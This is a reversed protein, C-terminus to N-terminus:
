DFGNGFIIDPSAEFAGVDVAVGQVRARGDADYAGSGGQPNSLGSDILISDPRLRPNGVAVFGPDGTGPTNNTTPAGMLKGYHVRSFHIGNGEARIDATSPNPDNGWTVTNSVHTTGNEANTLGLGSSTANLVITEMTTVSIQSLRSIGNGTTFVFIGVFVNGRSDRASINRLSLLGSVNHFFGAEASPSNVTTSCQELHVREVLTHGISTSGYLCATENIAHSPNRLTLDHVYATTNPTVASGTVGFKLTTRTAVGVLITLSPDNSKTECTGNSGSWGGSLEILQDPKSAWFQFAENGNVTQYTGTRLRIIFITDTSATAEDLAATLQSANGVCRVTLAHVPSTLALLCTLLLFRCDSLLRFM